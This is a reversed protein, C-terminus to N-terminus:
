HATKRIQDIWYPMFGDVFRYHGQLTKFLIGKKILSELSAKISSSPGIGHSLQFDKSFPKVSQDRSFAILLLKQPQSASRWLMEYHPSDQQAVIIPLEEILAPKIHRSEVARDWMVSCLRQINYPVDNGIEFLRALNESEVKIDGKKLWGLIFRAYEPRGISGLEMIRGLKYFARSKDRIMSLMVSQESGSFIYGVRSQNQIESRLAREVTGGDYKEIDSFEDIIVVLKKKKKAALWEIHRMGELLASLADKGDVALDLGTSISGDPGLSLTPRLKQLGSLIKLLKDKNTELARSTLSTIASAFSRVDPCANLDIYACAMKESKFVDVLNLLLCTKGYRRPSVLFVNNQNAMERRLEKMEARRDAFYPGRVVAGYKFPNEM